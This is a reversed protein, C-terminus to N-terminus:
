FQSIITQMVPSPAFSQEAILYASIPIEKVSLSAEIDAGKELKPTDKFHM